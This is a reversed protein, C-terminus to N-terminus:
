LTRKVEKFIFAEITDGVHIDNYNQIGIGGEFGQKLERVDDTFRKLSSIDGEHVVIGNRILRVKSQRTIKGNGVRVGAITGISSIKFLERVEARGLVEEVVDPELMGEIALKVDEIAEYIVRYTRIEVNEAKALDIAGGTPRVNFGIILANSATALLVDSETIGGVAGHIINVRVEDGSMEEFSKSVADITGRVDTKVIINLDKLEGEDIKSFLDDLSIHSSAKLHEEREHSKIEEAYNKAEASTEVAYLKEGAQPVDSLGLILVASSPKGKKIPKGHDNFLARVRGYASGAFVQDGQKLTGKQVLVTATPGRGTDLEAEIVTGVALRNPNAKLEEIEAIMLIMELLDDIGQGTKASVPITVIDGGWDEPLLDNEALEQLVRQENAEPLDMKNIAVIIPVEAAKAHSIAELTQPMVGDNAAVVLVVIDTVKAGRARMTTFAEHGPTDLFVIKDGNVRATHAGIHQTIGGAEGSAVHTERIKDLISTKGHDVHGMITVVPSRKQLDEEKDEYDLNFIDDDDFDLVEEKEVKVGFEDAILLATDFDIQENQSAMIGYSILKTIIQTTPQNIKQAFEQVQITEGIEVPKEERERRRRRSSRSEKKPEEKKNKSKKGKRQKKSSETKKQSKKETKQTDQKKTEKKSTEKKEKEPHFFHDLKKEDEETIVAMHSSYDLKLDKIATMVEKTEKNWDKALQYIRKKAM